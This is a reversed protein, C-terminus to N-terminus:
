LSKVLTMVIGNVGTLGSAGGDLVQQCMTFGIRTYFAHGNTNHRVMDLHVGRAGESKVKALFAEILVRGYGKRQFEPLIDIHLHAPYQELTQPWAQVMSCDGNYVARRFGQIEPREMLADGTQLDPRPVLKPDLAPTFVDRWRQAFAKTDPTGICYGVARGTGDDLM